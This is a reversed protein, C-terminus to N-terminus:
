ILKQQIAFHNLQVYEKRNCTKVPYQVCNGTSQLLVRNNMWETLFLKCTCVKFEWGRKGRGWKEGPYGRTEVRHRHTQKQKYILENTNYKLNWIYHYIYLLTSTLRSQSKIVGQVTVWQAGRDMFNELYSYQFPNNNVEGPSRGLEPFSGQIEQM